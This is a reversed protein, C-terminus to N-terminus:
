ELIGESNLELEMKDLVDKWKEIESDELVLRKRVEVLEEPSLIKLIELSKEFAWLSMLNTYANNKTGGGPSETGHEHYEDPGM